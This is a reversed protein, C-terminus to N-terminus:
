MIFNPAGPRAKSVIAIWNPPIYYSLGSADFVRHDNNNAISLRLPNHITLKSGNAYIYERLLESTINIFRFNTDNIFQPLSPTEVGPKVREKLEKETDERAKEVESKRPRGVKKKEVM